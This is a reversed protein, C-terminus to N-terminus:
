NDGKINEVFNNIFGTKIKEGFDLSQKILDNRKDILDMFEGYIEQKKFEPINLEIEKLNPLKIIKLSTGEMLQHIQKNYICSSNLMHYIFSPNYGKKLRIIAYNFPIIIGSNEVKIITKPESLLILIDDVKSYYKSDIDDSIEELSINLNNSSQLKPQIVNKLSTNKRKYRSIRVGAFIEAIEGLKEKTM